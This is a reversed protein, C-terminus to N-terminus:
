SKLHMEERHTHAPLSQTPSFIPHNVPSYLCHLVKFLFNVEAVQVESAQDTTYKVFNGFVGTVDAIILSPDVQDLAEKTKGAYVQTM